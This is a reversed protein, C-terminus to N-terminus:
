SGSGEGQSKFRLEMTQYIQYNQTFEGLSHLRQVGLVVNTEGIGVVYFDDRVRHRGMTMEIHQIRKNCTFTFENAMIVNSVRLNYTRLGMGNVLGEDIFNNTIERNILVIM